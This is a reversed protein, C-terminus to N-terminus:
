KKRTERVPKTKEEPTEREPAETEREPAETEREPAKMLEASATSILFGAEAPSVEVIEGAHHRIRADRLLKIKM